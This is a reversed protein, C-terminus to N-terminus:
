TWRMVSMSGLVSRSSLIRAGVQLGVPNLDWISIQLIGVTWFTKFAMASSALLCGLNQKSVEFSQTCTEMYAIMSVTKPILPFHCVLIMKSPLLKFCPSFARIKVVLRLLLGLPAPQNPAKGKWRANRGKRRGRSQQTVAPTTTVSPFSPAPWAGHLSPGAAQSLERAGPGAAATHAPAQLEKLGETCPWRPLASSWGPWPWKRGAWLGRSLHPFSCLARPLFIQDLFVQGQRYESCIYSPKQGELHSFYLAKLMLSCTAPASAKLNKVLATGSKRANNPCENHIFYIHDRELLIWFHM